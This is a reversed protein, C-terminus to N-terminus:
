LSFLLYYYYYSSSSSSSSSSYLLVNESRTSCGSTKVVLKYSRWIGKCVEEGLFRVMIARHSSTIHHLCKFSM